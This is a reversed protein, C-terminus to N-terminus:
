GNGNGRQDDTQYQMQEHHEALHRHRMGGVIRAVTRSQHSVAREGVSEPTTADHRAPYNGQQKKKAGAQEERHWVADHSSEDAHENQDSQQNEFPAEYHGPLANGIALQHLALSISKISIRPHGIELAVAAMEESTRGDFLPVIPDLEIGRGPRAADLFMVLENRGYAEVAFRGAAKEGVDVSFGPLDCFKFAIWFM